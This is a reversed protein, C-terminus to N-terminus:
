GSESLLGAPIRLLKEQVLYAQCIAGHEMVSFQFTVGDLMNLSEEFSSIYNPLPVVAPVPPSLSMQLVLSFQSCAFTSLRLSEASLVTLLTKM